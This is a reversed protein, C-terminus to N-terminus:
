SKEGSPDKTKVLNGYCRIKKNDRKSDTALCGLEHATRKWFKNHHHRPRLAHAIEHLLVQKVLVPYNLEVFKPALQVTKKKWNAQGARNFKNRREMFSFKHDYLGHLRMLSTAMEQADVLKMQNEFNTGSSGVVM